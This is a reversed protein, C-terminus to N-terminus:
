DTYATFMAILRLILADIQEPYHRKRKRNRAMLQKYLPLISNVLQVM